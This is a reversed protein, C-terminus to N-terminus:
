NQSFGPLLVINANQLNTHGSFIHATMRQYFMLMIIIFILFKSM